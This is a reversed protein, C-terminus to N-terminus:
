KEERKIVVLIPKSYTVETNDYIVRVRDPNSAIITGAPPEITELTATVIKVKLRSWRM